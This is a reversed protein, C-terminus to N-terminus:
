ALDDFAVRDLGLTVQGTAGGGDLRAEGHLAVHTSPQEPRPRLELSADVRAAEGARWSGALHGGSAPVPSDVMQLTGSETRLNFRLSVPVLSADLTAEAEVASLIDARAVIDAADPWLGALAAPRVPALAARLRVTGAAAEAAQLSATVSTGVLTGAISASAEARGDAQRVLEADLRAVDWDQGPASIRANRVIVRRGFRRLTAQWGTGGTKAATALRADPTLTIRPDLVALSRPRLQGHLLPAPELVLQARPAEVHLGRTPDSVTVDALRIDIPAGLGARFGEWALTAAGIQFQAPAAADSAAAQLRAALWPMEIPHEALQWALVAFGCGAVAVFGLALALLVRLATWLGRAAQGGLRRM